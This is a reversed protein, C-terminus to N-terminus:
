YQSAPMSIEIGDLEDTYQLQCSLRSNEQVDLACEVMIKEGDNPAPLKDAWPSDVYCHCTACSLTGGCEGVIGAVKATTAIQMISQGPTAEVETRTGDKAIFTIKGM